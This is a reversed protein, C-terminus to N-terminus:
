ARKYKKSTVCMRTVCVQTGDNLRILGGPGHADYKRTLRYVSKARTPFPPVWLGIQGSTFGTLLCSDGPAAMYHLAPVYCACLVNEIHASGFSASTGQWMAQENVIWTKLHKVGYTCFESGKRGDSPRLPNHQVGYVM